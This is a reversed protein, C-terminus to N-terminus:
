VLLTTLHAWSIFCLWSKLPIDPTASRVMMSWYYVNNPSTSRRRLLTSSKASRNQARPITSPLVQGQGGAQCWQVATCLAHGQITMTPEIRLSSANAGGRGEWRPLNDMGVMSHPTWRFKRKKLRFSFYSNLYIKELRFKAFHLSIPKFWGLFNFFAVHKLFSFNRM